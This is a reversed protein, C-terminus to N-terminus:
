LGPVSLAAFGSMGISTKCEPCRAGAGRVHLASRHRRIDLCPQCLYHQPQAPVPGGPGALAPRQDVRYAVHGPALEVMTYGSRQALADEAERLKQATEFHQQQLALLAATLSFLRQQADLLTENLKAVEPALKAADRIGLLGRGIDVAATVAGAASTVLSIDM